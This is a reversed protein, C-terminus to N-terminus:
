GGPPRRVRVSAALRDVIGGLLVTLVSVGVCTAAGVPGNPDTNPGVIATALKSPTAHDGASTTATSDKVRCGPM